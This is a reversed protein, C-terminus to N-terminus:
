ESTKYILASKREFEFFESKKLYTDNSTPGRDPSTQWLLNGM